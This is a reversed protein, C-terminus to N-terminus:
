RHEPSVDSVEVVAYVRGFVHILDRCTAQEEPTLRDWRVAVENSALLSAFRRGLLAHMLTTVVERGRRGIAFTGNAGPCIAM